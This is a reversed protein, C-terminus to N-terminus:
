ELVIVTGNIIQKVAGEIGIPDGNEDFKIKGVTGKYWNMSYFFEKICDTDESCAELANKLIYVSDYRAGAEWFVSPEGFKDRFNQMFNVAKQNSEDLLPADYFIAGELSGGGADLSKQLGVIFNGYMEIDLGLEKAQKAILGATDESTGPNIFLADANTAKAKTLYTRFDKEDPAFLEDVVISINYKEADNKVAQLVGVSYDTNETLSAIKKNTMYPNLKGVLKPDTDSPVMRFVYDGSNTIDPSSSFASFLIVKKAETVPAAALTEASCVGGLIIKVNDVNVLKQAANVAERGDCKGDEYIVKIERGNIKEIESIALEIANKESEGFSAAGGSLVGIFGIKIPEKEAAVVDTPPNFVLYVGIVLVIIVVIGVAIHLSKM